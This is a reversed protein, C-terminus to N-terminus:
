SPEAWSLLRPKRLSPRLSKAAESRFAGLADRKEREKTGKRERKERVAIEREKSQSEDNKSFEHM